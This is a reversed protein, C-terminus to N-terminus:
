EGLQEALAAPENVPLRCVFRRCVYATARGDLRARDALLPVVDGSEGAAVVTYPRYRARVTALLEQADVAQPDGVVAIELPEGLIFGTASLWHAFAGPYRAMPEALAAVMPEAVDWYNGEGTYLGLALLVHAAM